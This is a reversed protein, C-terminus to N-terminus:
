EASVAAPHLHRRLEGVAQRIVLISAQLALGAMNGPLLSCEHDSFVYCKWGVVRSLRAFPNGKSRRPAIIDM